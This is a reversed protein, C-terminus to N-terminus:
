KAEDLKSDIASSFDGLEDARALTEAVQREHQAALQPKEVAADVAQEQQSAAKELEQKLKELQAVEAALEDASKSSMTLDLGQELAREIQALHGIVRTQQEIAPAKKEEFLHATAEFSAAKAEAVL